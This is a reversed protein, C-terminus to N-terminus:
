LFRKRYDNPACGNLKLFTKYFYSYNNFGVCEAAKNVSSGERILRSAEGIRKEQIYNSLKKGTFRKFIRCVYYESYNVEKALKQLTIEESLHQNIYNIISSTIAVYHDNITDSKVDVHCDSYAYALLTHIVAKDYLDQGNTIQPNRYEQLVHIYKQFREDPIHIIVKHEKAYRFLGPLNANPTSMSILLSASISISFREYHCGPSTNLEHPTFMDFLGIDGAQAYYEQGNVKMIGADGLFIQYEYFDHYSYSVYPDKTEDRFLCDYDGKLLNVSSLFVAQDTDSFAGM